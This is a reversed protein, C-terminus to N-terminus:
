GEKRARKHSKGGGFADPGTHGGFLTAFLAQTDPASFTRFADAFEARAERRDRDLEESWAGIAMLTEASVGKRGALDRGYGHLAEVQVERDQVRGLVEQLGKLAKIAPKTKERPLVEALFEAVYRLKKM